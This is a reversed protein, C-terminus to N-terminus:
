LGSLLLKQLYLCLAPLSTWARSPLRSDIFYSKKKRKKKERILSSCYYKLGTVKVNGSLDKAWPLNAYSDSSSHHDCLLWVLFAAAFLGFKNFLVYWSPFFYSQRQRLGDKYMNLVVVLEFLSIVCGHWKISTCQKSKRPVTVDCVWLLLNGMKIYMRSCKSHRLTSPAFCNWFLWMGLVSLQASSDLGEVRSIYVTTSVCNFHSSNSQTDRTHKALAHWQCKLSVEPFQTLKWWFIVGVERWTNSHVKTRSSLRGGSSTGTKMKFCLVKRASIDPM